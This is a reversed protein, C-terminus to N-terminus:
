ISLVSNKDVYWFLEPSKECNYWIDGHKLYERIFCDGRGFVNDLDHINHLRRRLEKRKLERKNFTNRFSRQLFKKLANM